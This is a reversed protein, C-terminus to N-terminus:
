KKQLIAIFFGDASHMNPTLTLMKEENDASILPCSIQMEENISQFNEIRFEPRDVCFKEIQENNEERLLSCTVYVLKGGPKVYHHAKELIIQQDKIRDNLAKETLRWKADPHRRWTGTGTCPADILVIDMVHKLPELEEENGANHVQVNRCGARKIREIIPKLRYKDTDYAHLQGKNEMQSSMALTKGGSGACYDLVQDGPKARVLLSAIQSGEDQIEFWGKAHALEAEIAPSKKDGVTPMIRLANPAYQTQQPNFQKLAKEVKARDAKLSNVRIDIPARESLAKGLEIVKDGYQNEFKPYIWEPLNARVCPPADDLNSKQLANIEKDTLPGPSFKDEALQTKLQESDIGWSWVSTAIALSRPTDDQMRWAMSLKKRLADFVLNGIAARDHSGAFRNSRAWDKLAVNAPRYRREIETLIEIAASIRGPLKM